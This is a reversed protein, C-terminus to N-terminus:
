RCVFYTPWFRKEPSPPSVCSGSARGASRLAGARRAHALDHDAHRMAAPEVHEDVHQALHRRVQERLEFALRRLLQGGAVDLVVLAERRVHDVGPPGTCRVSANLGDCRSITLGTTSPERARAGAGARRCARAVLHQRDQDVAVGGDRPLAHDLFAEVHRLRAAVVGAARDVDDDVVLDAERRGVRAVRAARDYQVSMAFITSAGIKWTM